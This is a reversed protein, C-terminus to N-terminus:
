APNDPNDHILDPFNAGLVTFNSGFTTSNPSFLTFDPRRFVHGREAHSMGGATMWSM